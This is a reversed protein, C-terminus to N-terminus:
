KIAFFRTQRYSIAFTKHRDQTIFYNNMTYILLIINYQILCFEFAYSDNSVVGSIGGADFREVYVYKDGEHPINVGAATKLYTDKLYKGNMSLRDNTM